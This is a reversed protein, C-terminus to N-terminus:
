EESWFGLNTPAIRFIDKYTSLDIGQQFTLEQPTNWHFYTYKFDPRQAAIYIDHDTLDLYIM